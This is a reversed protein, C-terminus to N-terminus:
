KVRMEVSSSIEVEGFPLGLAQLINGYILEEEKTVTIMVSEGKTCCNLFTIEDDAITVNSGSGEEKIIARTEAIRMNLDYITPKFLATRSLYNAGERAANTVVIKTKILLGIDLAGLVLFVLIPLILAFEVLSQGSLGRKHNQSIRRKGPM